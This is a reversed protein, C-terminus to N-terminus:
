TNFEDTLTEVDLWNQVTRNTVAPVTWLIEPIMGSERISVAGGPVVIIHDLLPMKLSAMANLAKLTCALDENSPRRTGQPHNHALVLYKANEMLATSLLQNLYFPASDVTGKQLMAARILRGRGNLLVLHFREEHAGIYLTRLFRCMRSLTDLRPNLGWRQSMCTRTLSPIMAYYFADLNSLGTRTLARRGSEVFFRPSPYVRRITELRPTQDERKHLFRQAREIARYLAEQRAELPLGSPEPLPADEDLPEPECKLMRKREIQKM